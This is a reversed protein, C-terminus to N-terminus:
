RDDRSPPCVPDAWILTRYGPEDTDGGSGLKTMTELAGKDHVSPKRYAVNSATLVNQPNKM